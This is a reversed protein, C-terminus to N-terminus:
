WRSLLHFKFFKSHLQEMYLTKQAYNQKKLNGLVIKLFTCSSSFYNCHGVKKLCSTFYSKILIKALVLISLCCSIATNCSFNCAILIIVVLKNDDGYNDDDDDYNSDSEDVCCSKQM